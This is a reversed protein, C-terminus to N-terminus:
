RPRLRKTLVVEDGEPGFGDFRVKYDKGEQRLVKAPVYVGKYEVVVLQGPVYHLGKLSAPERLVRDAPVEEEGGAAFKVKLAGAGAAGVTASFWAGRLNVLVTEGVAPPGAQPASAADIAPPKPKAKDKDKDAPKEPVPVIVPPPAPPAVAPALAPPATKIRDAGVEQDYQPGYNDFRVVWHDAASIAIVKAPLAQGNVEVHLADGIAHASQGSFPRRLRDPGVTEGAEPGFGDYHVRWSDASVQTVIDALLLRNQYTVLV